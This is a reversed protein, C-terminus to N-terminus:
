RKRLEEALAPINLEEKRNGFPEPIQIHEAVTKVVKRFSDVILAFSDDALSMYFERKADFDIGVSEALVSREQERKEQLAKEAAETKEKHLTEIQTKLESETASYRAAIEQLKQMAMDMDSLANQRQTEAAKEYVAGCLEYIFDLLGYLKSEIDYLVQMDAQEQTEEMINEEALTIISTRDGYAPNKVICTAAFLCGSLVKIGNIEQSSKYYIEWSTGITEGNVFMERLHKDEDPFEDRWVTARAMIRNEALDFWVADITGIPYAKDHGQESGDFFIKIPMNLSSKLISEIESESVAEKNANPKFDTLCFELLTQLPNEVSATVKIFSEFTAINGM